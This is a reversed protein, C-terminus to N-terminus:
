ALIQFSIGSDKMEKEFLDTTCCNINFNIGDNKIEPKNPEQPNGDLNIGCRGALYGVKILDNKSLEEGNTKIQNIPVFYGCREVQM